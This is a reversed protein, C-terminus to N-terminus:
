IIYGGGELVIGTERSYDSNDALKRIGLVEDGSFAPFNKGRPLRFQVIDGAMERLKTQIVIHNKRAEAFDKGRKISALEQLEEFRSDAFGQPIFYRYEEGFDRKDILRFKGLKEFEVKNIHEIMHLKIDAQEHEGITLNAGVFEFYREQFAKMESESILEPFGARGFDLLKKDKGRYILEASLKGGVSQLAIFHVKGGTPYEGNRNCRGSSQILNPLPCWDRYLVPFDIDVGAEILQTSVLIVKEKTDLRKQCHNLKARRDNLTFHTNLLVCEDTESFERLLTYLRKTDDITNLIVLCSDNHDQIEGALQKVTSVYKENSIRYRNFVKEKYCDASLLEDPPRAYNVFLKEPKEYDPQNKINEKPRIELYPMTATSVIAYSDFQRCFEDLLAVFFIYLRPPLAQIEDLLFISRSFNPLRLLTANKNSVLTEFVQVFTTVIFPHDFTEASFDERLLEALKEESQETELESQIKEIRPNEARSDVRLVAVEDKFKGGDFENFDYLVKKCVAEVQETIALFPLAYIVDLAPNHMLVEKALALLMMTKGAGTPASLTFVRNGEQLGSRLNSVAEERMRTRARNLDSEAKYSNLKEDIRAAFNLQFYPKLKERKYDENNGADRKDAELLCAFGFQTELFLALPNSAQMANLKAAEFISEGFQPSSIIKFSNHPLVIQLFDSVPLPLKETLFQQLEEFPRQKFIGDRFDPLDGHHRAIMALLSLYGESTNGCWEKVKERNSLAFCFLAFASLYSHGSYGQPKINKLKMQFYPNIKGLDHFLAAIEGLKLNLDTPLGSTRRLVKQAVGGLHKELPKDRHSFFTNTLDTDV